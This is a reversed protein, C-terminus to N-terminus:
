ILMFLTGFQVLDLLAACTRSVEKQVDKMHKWLLLVADTHM